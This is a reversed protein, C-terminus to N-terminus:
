KPESWNEAFDTLLRVGYGTAGKGPLYSVSSPSELNSTGAMDIHAWAYGEAFMRLFHAAISAGGWRISSNKTDAVSSELTRAYEPFMPLSWLRERTREAAALLADSLAESECFLGAAQDGLAVVCAGTLTAMDVVAAPKYRAAYVLADALLMRGEADASVIEITKGNSATVVDQPRYAAGSIMNSTAPILGVVHRPVELGAIANMAGVIAAAGSMDYKMTAMGAVPKLSYGGTDFTVGKGVLVITNGADALDPRHELITFTPAEDSGQAVALLAGMKLARVQERGLVECHLGNSAAMAEARSALYQPTCINPPLDALERAQLVGTGIAVGRAIGQEVAPVDGESYALIMLSEPEDQADKTAKHPYRYLGLLAGTVIAEASAAVALGGRGTGLMASAVVRAGLARARQLGAAAARMAVDTDFTDAAGIGVVLVRTAPLRSEPYLVTVAGPESQCDGAAVLRSILGGLAEDVVRTAHGPTEVPGGEMLYVILTDADTAHLSAFGASFQMM